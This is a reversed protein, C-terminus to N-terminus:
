MGGILTSRMLQNPDRGGANERGDQCLRVLDQVDFHPSFVRAGCYKFSERVRHEMSTIACKFATQVVESETMEPHLTWKRTYQVEPIRSYTDREVYTARLYVGGHGESVEFNYEPFDVRKVGNARSGLWSKTAM